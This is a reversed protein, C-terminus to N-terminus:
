QKGLVSDVVWCGRVHVQKADRCHSLIDENDCGADQIADALIPMAGFDRSEYMQHALSLVTDTRWSPSFEVPRFPNGFIDRLLRCQAECEARAAEARNVDAIDRPLKALYARAGANKRRAERAAFCVSFVPVGKQLAEKVAYAASDSFTLSDELNSRSALEAAAQAARRATKREDPACTGDALREAVEVARRADCHSLLDDLRRCCAVCLLRLKRPAPGASLHAGLHRLMEDVDDSSLWEAETM